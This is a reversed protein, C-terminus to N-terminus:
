KNNVLFIMKRSFEVFNDCVGIVKAVDATREADISTTEDYLDFFLQKFHREDSSVGISKMYRSMRYYDRQILHLYPLVENVSVDKRDVFCCEVRDINEEIKRLDNIIFEKDFRSSAFAKTIFWAAFITVASPILINFYDSPNFDSTVELTCHWKIILLYALLLLFLMILVGVVIAFIRNIVKHGM